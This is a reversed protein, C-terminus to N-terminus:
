EFIVQFVEYDIVSDLTDELFSYDIDYSSNDNYSVSQGQGLTNYSNINNYSVVRVQKGTNYSKNSYMKSTAVPYIRKTSTMKPTSDVINNSMSPITFKSTSCQSTAQPLLPQHPNGFIGIEPVCGFCPGYNKHCRIAKGDNKYSYIKQKDLSFVFANKDDKFVENSTSEWINSTFGGFRKNGNSHILVLTNNIGDCKSHFISPDRGDKAALYIKKINKIKRYMRKKIASFILECENYKLINSFSTIQEYIIKEGFIEKFQKIEEKLKANEEKLYNIEMNQSLLNSNIKGINENQLKITNKLFSIEKIIDDTLDQIKIKNKELPIEIIQQKFLYEINMLLSFSENNIKISLKKNEYLAKIYDLFEKCTKFVCFIQHKNKIERLSLKQSYFKNNINGEEYLNLFIIEGEIVLELKYKKENQEIILTETIKNEIEKTESEIQYEEM